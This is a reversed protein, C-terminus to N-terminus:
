RHPPVPAPAGLRSPRDIRDRRRDPRVDALAVDAADEGPHRDWVVAEPRKLEIM